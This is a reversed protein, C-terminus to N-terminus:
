ELSKTVAKTLMDIASTMKVLQGEIVVLRQDQQVFHERMEKQTEALRVNVGDLRTEVDDLREKVETFQTNVGDLREKVETFQKEVYTSYTHMGTLVEELLSKQDESQKAQTAIRAEMLPERGLLNSLQKADVAIM